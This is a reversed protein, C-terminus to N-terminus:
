RQLCSEPKVENDLPSNEFFAKRATNRKLWSLSRIDCPPLDPRYLFLLTTQKLFSLSCIMWVDGGCKFQPTKQRRWQHCTCPVKARRWFISFAVKNWRSVCVHPRTVKEFVPVAKVAWTWAFSFFPRRMLEWEVTTRLKERQRCGWEWIIIKGNGASVAMKSRVSLAHSTDRRISSSDEGFALVISTRHNNRWTRM